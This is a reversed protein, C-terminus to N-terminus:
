MELPSTVGCYGCLTNYGNGSMSLFEVGMGQGIIERRVVANIPIPEHALGTLWLKLQFHQALPLPVCDEIFAGKPSIDRVPNQM